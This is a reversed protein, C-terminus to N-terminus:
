KKRNSEPNKGFDSATYKRNLIIKCFVKYAIYMTIILIWDTDLLTEGRKDYNWQLCVMTASIMQQSQTYYQAAAWTWHLSSEMQGARVGAQCGVGSLSGGTSQGYTHASASWSTWPHTMMFAGFSCEHQALQSCIWASDPTILLILQTPRRTEFVHTPQPM